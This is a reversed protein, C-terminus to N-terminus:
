PKKAVAPAPATPAASPPLSSPPAMSNALKRLASPDAPRWANLPNERYNIVECSASPTKPCIVCIGAEKSCCGVHTSNEIHRADSALLCSDIALGLARGSVKKATAEGCIAFLVTIFLALSISKM